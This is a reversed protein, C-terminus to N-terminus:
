QTIAVVVAVGVALGVVNSVRRKIVEKRVQKKLSLNAETLSENSSTLLGIRENLVIIQADQAAIIEDRESVANILAKREIVMLNINSILVSKASDIVQPDNENNTIYEIINVIEPEFGDVIFSLSDRQNDNEIAANKLDNIVVNLEAQRSELVENKAMFIEANQQHSISKKSLDVNQFMYFACIAGIGIVPIYGRIRKWELSFIEKKM